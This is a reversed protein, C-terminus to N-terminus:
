GFAPHWRVEGALPRVRDPDLVAIQFDGEAIVFDGEGLGAFPNALGYRGAPEFGRPGYYAPDGLLIVAAADLGAAETLAARVLATGIGRRQHSPMVGIPGLALVEDDGIHALSLQVHGVIEGGDEAVLALSGPEDRVAEVIAPEEPTGFAAREVELSAERDEPREVRVIM